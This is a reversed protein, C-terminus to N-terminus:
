PRAHKIGYRKKLGIWGRIRRWSMPKVDNRGSMRLFAALLFLEVVGFAIKVAYPIVPAHYQSFFAEVIGAWVLLVAVGGILTVVDPVVERLRAGFPLASKRGIMAGALLLGAQGALLISPIEVTGHPLLWGAVFLSQGARIYDAVVAGLMVGNSYLVLVTGIGWTMGLALVFISIRTNHTMLYASFASKAGSLRDKDAAEERAVRDAPDMQLHEFPMLVAKADPDWVIAGAGFLAGASMIALSLAFARWRRRFTQPFTGWFWRWFSFRVAEQRGAHITAYARGVLTELYENIAREASFTSIKSLDSSARQYLYHLRKIEEFTMRRYPDRENRILMDDLETWFPRETAIFKKLDIIM